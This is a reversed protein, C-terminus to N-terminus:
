ALAIDSHHLFAYALPPFPTRTCVLIAIPPSPRLHALVTSIIEPHNDLSVSSRCLATFLPPYLIDPSALTLCRPSGRCTRLNPRPFKFEPPSSSTVHRISHHAESIPEHRMAASRLQYSVRGLYFLCSRSTEFWLPM